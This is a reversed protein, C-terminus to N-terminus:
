LIQLLAQRLADYALSVTNNSVNLRQAFGRVSPLAYNPPFRGSVVAIAIQRRIQMQLSETSHRDLRIFNEIMQSM